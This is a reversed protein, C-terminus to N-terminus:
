RGPGVVRAPRTDSPTADDVQEWPGTAKPGDSGPSLVGRGTVRRDLRALM